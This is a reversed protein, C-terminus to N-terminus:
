RAMTGALQAPNSLTRPARLPRAMAEPLDQMQIEPARAELVAQVLTDELERLNGPWAHNCLAQHAAPSIRLVDPRDLRKIAAFFYHQVLAELDTRHERLAPCHVHSKQLLSQLDERFMAAQAAAELPISSAAIMRVDASLIQGDDFATFEQYQLLRLLKVQSSLPLRTIEDLFLTGGQAMQVRGPRAKGQGLSASPAHGFLELELLAEPVAGCNLTLFPGAARSSSRHIALALLEKATGPEGTILLAGHVQALEEIDPMSLGLMGQLLHHASRM